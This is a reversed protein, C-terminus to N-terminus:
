APPRGPESAALESEPAHEGTTGLAVLLGLFAGKVRPLAVLTLVLLPLLIVPAILLSPMRWVAPIFLLPGVVLHGVLLITFYAPGDDTRYAGLPHGCESCADNVKLYARFIRGEGCCPCRGVLGRRMALFIEQPTSKSM